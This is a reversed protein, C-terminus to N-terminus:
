RNNNEDEKKRRSIRKADEFRIELKRIREGFNM